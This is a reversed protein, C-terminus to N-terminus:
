AARRRATAAMRTLNRRQPDTLLQGGPQLLFTDVDAAIAHHESPTNAHDLRARIARVYAAASSRIATRTVGSAEM